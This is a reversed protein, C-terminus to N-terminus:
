EGLAKVDSFPCHNKDVWSVFAESLAVSCELALICDNEARHADVAPRNLLREYIDKLKYSETPKAGDGWFFKRRVKSIKSRDYNRPANLSTKPTNENTLKMPLTNKANFLDVEDFSETKDGINIDVNEAMPVNEKKRAEMIDQFAYLSDACLLDEAFNVKLRNLQKKIIPFDFNHGNQAILCVPKTLVDLFINIMNFVKMSFFPEYELLENCLGTVTTCSPQIVRGPNLCLTVKQQVRPACGPRTALLHDRKVAVMSIETIKTGNNEESPLGTTELDLFVYTAIPAM